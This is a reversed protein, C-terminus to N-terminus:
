LIVRGPYAESPKVTFGGGTLPAYGNGDGYLVYLGYTYAQSTLDTDESTLHVHIQENEYVTNKMLMRRGNLVNVAFIVMTGDDPPDSSFSFFLDTEDGRNIEIDKGSIKLM